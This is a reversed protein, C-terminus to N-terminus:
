EAVEVTGKRVRTSYEAKFTGLAGGRPGPAIINGALKYSEMAYHKRTVTMVYFLLNEIKGEVNLRFELIKARPDGFLAQALGFAGPGNDIEFSGTKLKQM